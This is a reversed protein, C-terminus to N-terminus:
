ELMEDLAGDLKEQLETAENRGLLERVVHTGIRM